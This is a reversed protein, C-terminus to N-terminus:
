RGVVPMESAINIDVFLAMQNEVQLFQGARIPSLAESIREHYKKWLDLRDRSNQLWREALDKSNADNLTGDKNHALFERIMALKRDGVGAMQREYERYVPWFKEAEAPTLKMVQNLTRIKAGNFDSRLVEFYARASDPQAQARPTNTRASTDPKKEETACGQMLMAVAALALPWVAPHLNSIKM